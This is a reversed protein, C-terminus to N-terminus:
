AAGPGEGRGRWKGRCNRMREGKIRKEEWKEKWEAVVVMGVGVFNM